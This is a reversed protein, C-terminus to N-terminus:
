PGAPITIPQQIASKIAALALLQIVDIVTSFHWNGVDKM